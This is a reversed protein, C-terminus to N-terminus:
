MTTQEILQHIGDNPNSRMHVRRTHPETELICGERTHDVERVLMAPYNIDQIIARMQIIARLEFGELWFLSPM